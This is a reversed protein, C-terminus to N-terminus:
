MMSPADTVRDGSVQTVERRGAEVRDGEHAGDLLVQECFSLIVNPFRLQFQRLIGVTSLCPVTTSLMQVDGHLTACSKYDELQAGLSVMTQCVALLATFCPTRKGSGPTGQLDATKFIWPLPGSRRLDAETEMFRAQDHVFFNRYSEQGLRLEYRCAVLDTDPRLREPFDDTGPQLRQCEFVFGRSPLGIGLQKLIKPTGTTGADVLGDSLEYIKQAYVDESVQDLSTADPWIRKFYDAWNQMRQYTLDEIIEQGRGSASAYVSDNLKVLVKTSYNSPEMSAQHGIAEVLAPCPLGLVQFAWVTRSQLIPKVDFAKAVFEEIGQFLLENRVHVRALSWAVNILGYAKLTELAETGRHLIYKTLATCFGHHYLSLAGMSHAVQALQAPGYQHISKSVQQGLANLLRTQLSRPVASKEVACAWSLMSLDNPRLQHVDKIAQEFLAKTLEEDQVQTKAFAWAVNAIESPEMCATNHKVEKAVHNFLMHDPLKQRAFAWALHALDKVKLMDVKNLAESSVVAMLNDNKVKLTTFSWAIMALAETNFKARKKEVELAIANMLDKILTVWQAMSWAIRALSGPVSHAIQLQYEAAIAEVLQKNWLGCKAYAWATHSLQMHDFEKKKSVVEAAIKSMLKEDRHQISAFTYVLTTLDAPTMKEVRTKALEAMTNMMELLEKRGHMTPFEGCARVLDALEKPQLRDTIQHLLMHVQKLLDTLAELDQQHFAQLIEPRLSAINQLNRAVGQADQERVSQQCAALMRRVDESAGMFGQMQRASSGLPLVDVTHSTHQMYSGHSGPPSHTVQAGRLGHSERSADENTSVQAQGGRAAIYAYTPREMSAPAETPEMVDYVDHNSQGLGEAGWGSGGSRDGRDVGVRDREAREQRDRRGRRGDRRRGGENSTNNLNVNVSHGGGGRPHYGRGNMRGGGVDHDENDCSSTDM